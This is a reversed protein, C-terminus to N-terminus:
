KKRFLVFFVVGVVALVGIAIIIYLWISSNEGDGEGEVEDPVMEVTGEDITVGQEITANFTFPQYGEADVEFLYTGVSLNTFLFRGNEDTVAVFEGGATVTVNVAPDGNEDLILGTLNGVSRTAFTWNMEFGNGALDKGTVFVTYARNYFLSSPTFMVANGEWALTGTTGTVVVSVSTQNMQESFEVLVVLDLELDDGIPSAEAEPAVTDVIINLTASASNGAQDTVMVEITHEGDDLSYTWNTFSGRQTWEGGDVRVSSSGEDTAWEVTGTSSNVLAGDEPSVFAVTPAITDVTFNVSRELYNGAADTVKVYAIHHGETLATRIFEEGTALAWGEGDFRVQVTGPNDDTTSWTISVSSVNFMQGDTPSDIALTPVVTDMTFTVTVDLYNGLHDYASVLVTYTGDALDNFTHSTGTTNIFGLGEISVIYYAIGTGADSGSWTVTVDASNVFGDQVPSTITLSPAQTDVMVAVSDTSSRGVKDYVTVTLLHSGDSLGTFTYSSMSPLLTVPSGGEWSVEYRDVGSGADSGSWTLIISGTTNILGEAPYIISVGPSDVDVTFTVVEDRYNDLQDYASVLVTYTGDALGNITYSDNTTSIFFLGEISVFYYAVGTGSDSGTWSVTVDSGVYAGESPSNITLSPPTSDLVVSISAGKVIGASDTLNVTILNAGETLDVTATWEETGLCIGSGGTIANYWTVQVVEFFSIATGSLAINASDTTVGEAPSTIVISVALPMTDMGMGGDILYEDDVIGDGDLDPSTWDGWLNGHETDNWLNAGSDYAQVHAPDFMSTAGNNEMLLNGFLRNGTASTINIGYLRSCEITNNAIMNGSCVNFDGAGNLVLGHGAFAMPYGDDVLQHGNNRLTNNTINNNRSRYEIYIGVKSNDVVTNNCIRSDIVENLWMGLGNDSCTNNCIANSSSEGNYLYIGIQVNGSCNNEILQNRSSGGVVSIGYAAGACTNNFVYNDFSSSISIGQNVGEVIINDNNSCNNDIILNGDSSDMEIGIGNHVCTNQSVENSSSYSLYIGVTPSQYTMDPSACTNNIVQDNQGQYIHIGFDGNNECTNNSVLCNYSFDLYVGTHVNESCDNNEIANNDSESLISIGLGNRLCTNGRITNFISAWLYIGDGGLNDNCNNETIFNYSSGDLWIGYENEIFDNHSLSNHDSDILYIGESNQEGFNLDVVCYDSSDLWIGSDGNQFVINSTVDIESSGQVYIGSGDNNHVTNSAVTNDPSNMIWIGYYNGYCSNQSITNGTVPNSPSSHVLVGGYYSDIGNNTCTNGIILNGSCNASSSHLAIGAIWNGHCINDSITNNMSSDVSIGEGDNNMCINAHITNNNSNGLSIGNNGSSCNNESLTNNNSDYMTIGSNGTVQDGCTNQKLSCNFVGELYFDIGHSDCTNNSLTTNYSYTLYIGQNLTRNCINHDITNFDCDVQLGIGDWTDNCINNLLQNYSSNSLYIGADSDSCNNSVIKTNNTHQLYIGIGNNSCDNNDIVLDRCETVFIGYYNGMANLVCVNNRLTVNNADQLFVGYMNSNRVICDKIVLHKSTHAISIAFESGTADIDLDQIVYPEAETGLGTWTPNNVFLQDLETDGSVDIISPEAGEASGPTGISLVILFTLLVLAAGFCKGFVKNM